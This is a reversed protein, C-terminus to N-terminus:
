QGQAQGVPAAQAMNKDLMPTVASGYQVSRLVHTQGVTDFKLVVRNDTPIFSGPGLVWSISEAPGQVMVSTGIRSREVVYIGAPYQHGAATFNFPVSVRTAAMAPTAMLTATALVAPAALLSLISIRM